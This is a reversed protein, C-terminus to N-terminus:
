NFANRRRKRKRCLLVLVVGPALFVLAAPLRLVSFILPDWLFPHLYREVVAQTLNLSGPHLSYWLQGLPMMARAGTELFAYADRGALVIGLAVLGWGLWRGIV